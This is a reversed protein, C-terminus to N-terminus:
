PKPKSGSSQPDDSNKDQKPTTTDQSAPSPAPQSAAGQPTQQTPAASSPATSTGGPSTVVSANKDPLYLPGKQGCGAAVVSGCVMLAWTVTKMHVDAPPRAIGAM